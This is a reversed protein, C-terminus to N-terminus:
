DDVLVKGTWHWHNSGQVLKLELEDDAALPGVGSPTGTLVVDGPLLTFQQSIDALLAAVSCLMDNTTGQQRIEGNIVLQLQLPQEADIAAAPLWGSLACSGDFAKAREWPQGAAKLQDQVDRLTLDLALGYHSVAAMADNVEARRLRSGVRVALELEHHCAGRGAPIRVEPLWTVATAPKMFLLPQSPLPNNLEAAHAAYNRGVCVIKGPLAPPGATFM